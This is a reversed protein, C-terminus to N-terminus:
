MGTRGIYLLPTNPCISESSSTTLSTQKEGTEPDVVFWVDQKKGALACVCVCVSFFILLSCQLIDFINRDTESVVIIFYSSYKEAYRDRVCALACMLDWRYLSYWWFEQLSSVSGARPHHLSTEASIYLCHTWLTSFSVCMCVCVATMVMLGEKHKGGLVYLSGDNPDPLFGPRCFCCECM